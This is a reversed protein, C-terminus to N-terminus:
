CFVNKCLWRIWQSPRNRVLLSKLVVHRGHMHLESCGRIRQIQCLRMLLLPRVPSSLSDGHWAGTGCSGCIGPADLAM